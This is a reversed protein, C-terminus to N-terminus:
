LKNLNSISCLDKSDVVLFSITKCRGLVFVVDCVRKSFNRLRPVQKRFNVPKKMVTCIESACWSELRVLYDLIFASVHGKM